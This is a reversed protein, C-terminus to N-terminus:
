SSLTESRYVVALWVQARASIRGVDNETMEPMSLEATSLGAFSTLTEVEQVPGAEGGRKNLANPM